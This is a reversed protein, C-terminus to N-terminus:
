FRRPLYACSANKKRAYREQKEVGLDDHDTPVHFLENFKQSLENIDDPIPEIYDAQTKEKSPIENHDHQHGGHQHQPDPSSTQHQHAEQQDKQEKTSPGRLLASTRYTQCTIVKTHRLTQKLMLSNM